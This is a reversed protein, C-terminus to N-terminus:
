LHQRHDEYRGMLQAEALMHGESAKVVSAKTTDPDPLLGM